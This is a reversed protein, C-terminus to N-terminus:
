AEADLERAIDLLDEEDVGDQGRWVLFVLHATSGQRIATECQRRYAGLIDPDSTM